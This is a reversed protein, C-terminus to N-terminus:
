HILKLNEQLDYFEKPAKKWDENTITPAHKELKERDWIQLHKVFGVIKIDNELGAYRLMETLRNKANKKFKFRGNEVKVRVYDKKPSKRKRM